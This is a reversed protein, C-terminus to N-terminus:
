FTTTIFHENSQRPIRDEQQNQANNKGSKVGGIKLRRLRGGNIPDIQDGIYQSIQYPSSKMKTNAKMRSIMIM